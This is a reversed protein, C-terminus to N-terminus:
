EKVEVGEKREEGREREEIKRQRGRLGAGRGSQGQICFWCSCWGARQPMKESCDLKRENAKLVSILHM